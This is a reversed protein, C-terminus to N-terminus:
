RIALYGQRSHIRYDAHDPVSVDLRHLPPGAADAPLPFILIYQSHVEAGLKEIANEIGREKVFPYDSGGTAQTLAQIANTKGLRALETFIALINTPPPGDPGEIQPAPADHLAPQDEPKTAFATVYASYHAGFVEVGERQVAEAAKEFDVKSGRDRSESIVLLVKRGKRQKMRDVTQVVTDLMRAQMNGNPAINRIANQIKTSDATFDQLWTVESDFTVVAVEGGSGTVLPQIMGGIRRIKTLAPTSIGSSQIAVVLSIPAVGTDFTDLIIERPVGDDILRFDRASLGEVSRGKKDTVTVPVPVVNAQSRFSPTATQSRAAPFGDCIALFTILYVFRRLM